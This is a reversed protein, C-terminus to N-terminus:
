RGRGSDRAKGPSRETELSPDTIKEFVRRIPLLDAAQKMSPEVRHTLGLSVAAARNWEDRPARSFDLEHGAAKALQSLMSQTARGNGEPFPHAFNVKVYVETLAAVFEPKSLGKLGGRMAIDDAVKALTPEIEETRAFVAKWGPRSEVGKSFNVTREKGAWGYVDQFLHRHIAKLHRLDYAGVIPNAILQDSRATTILYEKQHLQKRDVIGLLNRHTGGDHLYPNSV